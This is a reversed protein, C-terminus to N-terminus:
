LEAATYDPNLPVAVAGIVWIAYLSEVFARHNDMILAVHHGKSVGQTRLYVAIGEVRECLAEYNVTQEEFILAARDPPQSALRQLLNLM